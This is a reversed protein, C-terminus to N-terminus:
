HSGEIVKSKFYFGTSNFLDNFGIQFSSISIIINHKNAKNVRSYFFYFYATYLVVIRFAYFKCYCVNICYNLNFGLNLTSRRLVRNNDVYSTVKYKYKSGFRDSLPRKFTPFVM